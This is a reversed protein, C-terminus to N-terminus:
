FISVSSCFILLNGSEICDNNKGTIYHSYFVIFVLKFVFFTIKIMTLPWLQQNVGSCDKDGPVIIVTHNCCM